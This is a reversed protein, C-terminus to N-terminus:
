KKARYKAIADKKAQHQETTFTDPMVHKNRCGKDLRKCAEGMITSGCIGAFPDNSDPEKSATKPKVARAAGQSEPARKTTTASVVSQIHDDYARTAEDALLKARASGDAYLDTNAQPEQKRTVIQELHEVAEHLMAKALFPKRVNSCQNYKCKLSAVSTAVTTALNSEKGCVAAVFTALLELQDRESVVTQAPSRFLKKYLSQLSNTKAADTSFQLASITRASERDISCTDYGPMNRLLDMVLNTVTDPDFTDTHSARMAKYPLSFLSIVLLRLKGQSTQKDVIMAPEAPARVATALTNALALAQELIAFGPGPAPVNAPAAAAAVRAEALATLTAIAPADTIRRVEVDGNTIDVVAAGMGLPNPRDPNNAPALYFIQFPANNGAPRPKLALVYPNDYEVGLEALDNSAIRQNPPLARLNTGILFHWSNRALTSMRTSTGAAILNAAAQQVPQVAAWTANGALIPAGQVLLNAQTLGAMAPASNNIFANSDRLYSTVVNAHAQMHGAAPNANAAYGAFMM